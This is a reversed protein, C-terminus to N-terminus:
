IQNLAFRMGMTLDDCNLPLQSARDNGRVRPDPHCVRSHCLHM